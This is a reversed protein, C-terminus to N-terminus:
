MGHSIVRVTQGRFLIGDLGSLVRGDGRLFVDTAVPFLHIFDPEREVPVTFDPGAVWFVVFPCLPSKDLHEVTEIAVVLLFGHRDRFQYFCELGDSGM